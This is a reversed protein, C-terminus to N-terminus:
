AANVSNYGALFILRTNTGHTRNAFSSGYYV